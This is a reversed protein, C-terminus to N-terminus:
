YSNETEDYKFPNSWVPNAVLNSDTLSYLFHLLDIKESESITFPTVFPHKFKNLTGKGTYEGENIDRGGKSFIQIVEFLSTESGDHFYPGTFYLNRLTPVRFKGMDLPNNTLQKLGQDYKPYGGIGDLNYLGINYFFSTDGAPEKFQPISFNKGGHCYACKLKESFFLNMGNKESTNLAAINGNIFSDYRSNYSKITSIFQVISEKINKFSVPEAIDAYVLSFIHKYNSDSKIRDLIKKENGKFGMEIPHDSLLPRDMQEFLSHVTSDSATLYKLESLNFLPSTNRQLIDAYAGLSRKYGDTFAFKQNHCTGCSKTFNISLRRDYFLHRGLEIKNKQISEASIKNKNCSLFFSSVSIIIVLLSLIILFSKSLIWKM